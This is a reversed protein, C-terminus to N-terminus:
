SCPVNFSAVDERGCGSIEDYRAISEGAFRRGGRFRRAYRRPRSITPKERKAHRMYLRSPTLFLAGFRVYPRGSIVRRMEDWGTSSSDFIMPLCRPTRERVLRSLNKPRSQYTRLHVACIKDARYARVFLSFHMRIGHSYLNFSFLM